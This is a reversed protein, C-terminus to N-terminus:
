AWFYADGADDVDIHRDADRLHEQRCLVLQRLALVGRCLRLLRLLVARFQVVAPTQIRPDSLKHFNDPGRGAGPHRNM